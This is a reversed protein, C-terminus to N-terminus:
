GTPAGFDETSWLYGDKDRVVAFGAQDLLRENFEDQLKPDDALM